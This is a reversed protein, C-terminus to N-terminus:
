EPFDAPSFGLATISCQRSVALAERELAAVVESADAGPNLWIAHPQADAIDDVLGIAVAPPLYISLVDVREPLDEVSAFTAIGEVASERPNVPHVRWGARQFARVAKNGFKARNSSAGLIAVSPM